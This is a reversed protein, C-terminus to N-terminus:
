IPQRQSADNAYFTTYYQPKKLSNAQESGNKHRLGYM